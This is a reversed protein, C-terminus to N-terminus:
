YPPEAPGAYGCMGLRPSNILPSPGGYEDHAHDALHDACLTIWEGQEALCDACYWGAVAGCEACTVEPMKNRAMLYIPHKTLPKGERVSLSKVTTESSTGFDYIHTLTIGPALVDEIKRSMGIKSGSWGGVSFQSMHGCCELWIARLYQDLHKLTSRGNVELHLWFDSNYTDSVQLHYLPQATGSTANASAEQRQPCSKLHNSLGGRTMERECFVCNGQSQKKRTM